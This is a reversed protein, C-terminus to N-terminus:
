EGSYVSLVPQQARLRICVGLRDVRAQLLAQPGVPLALEHEKRNIDRDQGKRASEPPEQTHPQVAPPRKGIRLQCPSDARLDLKPLGLLHLGEAPYAGADFLSRLLRSLAM